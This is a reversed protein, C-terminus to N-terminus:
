LVRPLAEVAGCDDRTPSRGGPGPDPTPLSPSQKGFHVSCFAAEEIHVGALQKGPFSPLVAQLGTKHQSPFLLLFSAWLARASKEACSSVPAGTTTPCRAESSSHRDQGKGWVKLILSRGSRPARLGQGAVPGQAGRLGWLLGPLLPCHATKNETSISVFGTPYFERGTSPCCPRSNLSYYPPQIPALDLSPPAVPLSFDAM